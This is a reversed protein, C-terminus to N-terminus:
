FYRPSSQYVVNYEYGFTACMEKMHRVQNHWEFCNKHVYLCFEKAPKFFLLTTHVDPHHEHLKDTLSAMVQPSFYQTNRKIFIDSLLHFTYAVGKADAINLYEEAKEFLQDRLEATRDPDEAPLYRAFSSSSSM